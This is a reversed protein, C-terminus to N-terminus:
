RGLHWHNTEKLYSITDKLYRSSGKEKTGSEIYNDLTPNFRLDITPSGPFHTTSQKVGGHLWCEQGGTIVLECSPCKSSIIKIYELSIRYISTCNQEGVFSCDKKNTSFNPLEGPPPEPVTNEIITNWVANASYGGNTGKTNTCYKGNIATQPISDDITISVTDIQKDLCFNLLNPNVTYLLLYAGLAIILGLVANTITDKGSGKESPVVSTMYELGGKVIMVVALVASIGLFLKILINMYKGFPCPNKLPDSEFNTFGEPTGDPLAELLKYNTDSDVNTPPTNTGGGDIVIPDGDDEFKPMGGCLGVLDSNNPFRLAYESIKVTRSIECKSPTEFTDSLQLAQGPEHFTYFYVTTFDSASLENILFSNFFLTTVFLLILFKKIKSILM